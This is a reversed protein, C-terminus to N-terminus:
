LKVEPFRRAAECHDIIQQGPWTDMDDGWSKFFFPTSAEVCEMRIDDIWHPDTRRCKQGTEGGAIVWSLKRMDCSAIPSGCHGRKFSISDRLLDREQGMVKAKTLTVPGLLPECSVFRVIFPLELLFQVRTDVAEQNECSVGMWVNSPAVDVRSGFFEQVVQLYHIALEPRKTLILYTHRPNALMAKWVAILMDYTVSPHFLDGMSNVFVKRPKRWRDLQGLKDEHFTVKFPRKEDYGFRGALRKAMREAYCNM